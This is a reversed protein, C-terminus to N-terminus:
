CCTRDATQELFTLEARSWRHAAPHHVTLMAVIRGASVLPVNAWAVVRLAAYAAQEAASFGADAIVNDRWSTRGTLFEDALTPGFDGIRYRGGLQAPMGPLADIAVVELEDPGQAETNGHPDHRGARQGPGFALRLPEDPHFSTM